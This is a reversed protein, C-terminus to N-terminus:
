DCPTNLSTIWEDLVPIFNEDVLTRGNMPMRYEELTTLVRFFLISNEADGPVILKSSDYGPIQLDPEVCIGLNDPDDSERFALRLSRAGCHGGYVHCHACNMDFIPLAQNYQM